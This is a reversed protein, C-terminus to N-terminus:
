LASARKARVCRRVMEQASIPIAGRVIAKERMVPSLDFHEYVTGAKQLYDRRLGLSEAFALLESRDGDTMCHCWKQGRFPWQCPDVYVAM